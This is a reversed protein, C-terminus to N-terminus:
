YLKPCIARSKAFQFKVIRLQCNDPACLAGFLSDRLAPYEGSEHVRISRNLLLQFRLGKSQRFAHSHSPLGLICRATAVTHCSGARM